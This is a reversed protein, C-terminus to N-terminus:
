CDIRFKWQDKGIPAIRHEGAHFMDAEMQCPLFGPSLSVEMALALEEMRGKPAIEGLVDFPALIGNKRAHNRGAGAAERSFARAATTIAAESRRMRTM